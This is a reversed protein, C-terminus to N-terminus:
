LKHDTNWSISVKTEACECMWHNTIQPKNVLLITLIDRKDLCCTRNNDFYKITFPQIVTTKLQDCNKNKTHQCIHYVYDTLKRNIALLCIYHYNSNFNKSKKDQAHSKKTKLRM